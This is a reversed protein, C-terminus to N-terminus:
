IAPTAGAEVVYVNNNAGDIYIDYPTNLTVNMTINGGSESVAIADGVNHTGGAVSGMWTGNKLVKFNAGESWSDQFTVNKAVFFGDVAETAIDSAWQTNNLDGKITWVDSVGGTPDEGGAAVVFLKSTAPNFYFDFTGADIWM